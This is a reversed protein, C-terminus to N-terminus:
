PISLKKNFFIAGLCTLPWLLFLPNEARVVTNGLHFLFAGALFWVIAKRYFIIVPFFLELGVAFISLFICLWRYQIIFAAIDNMGMTVLYFQMTYGNMWTLGGQYFIKWAGSFCYASSVMILIMSNPWGYLGSESKVEKTWGFYSDLSYVDSSRSLAIIILFWCLVSRPHHVEGFSWMYAVLFTFCFAFGVSSFKHFLGLITGIGTLIMFYYIIRIFSSSMLINDGLINAFVKILLPPDVLSAYNQQFGLLWELPPAAFILILSGMIIRLFAIVEPGQVPFLISNILSVVKKQYKM